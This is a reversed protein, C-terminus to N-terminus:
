IEVTDEQTARMVEDLSTKGSLVKVFGDDRLTTM